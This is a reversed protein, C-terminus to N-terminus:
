RDDQGVEVHAVPGVEEHLLVLIEGWDVEPERDQVHHHHPQEKVFLGAVGTNEVHLIIILKKIHAPLFKKYFLSM